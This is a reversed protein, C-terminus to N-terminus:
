VEVLKNEILYILMKARAGAETHEKIEDNYYAILWSKTNAFKATHLYNWSGYDTKIRAPLMEGLEAVTPAICIKIPLKAYGDHYTSQNDQSTQYQCYECFISGDLNQYWAFISKQQIGLNKLQKALELSVVQNEIKM